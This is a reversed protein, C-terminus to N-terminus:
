PNFRSGWNNHKEKHCERCLTIGNELNKDIIEPQEILWLLKEDDNKFIINEKDAKELLIKVLKVIPIIHHAEIKKNSNCEVCKFNDRIYIRKYWNYKRHIYGKVRKVLSLKGGKWATANEGIKYKRSNSMKKLTIVSHKKGYMGNKAGFLKRGKISEQYKLSNKMINSHEKRKEETWYEKTQQPKITIKYSCSQCYDKDSSRRKRSARISKLTRNFEKGCMDCECDLYEIVKHKINM